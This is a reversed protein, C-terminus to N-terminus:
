YGKTIFLEIKKKNKGEGMSYGVSVENIKFGFEEKFLERIKENDNYTILLKHKSLKCDEAFKVHDFDKHTSGKNGYLNDSVIQYPPDLFIFVDEGDEFLLDEYSSSRIQCTSLIKSVSKINEIHNDKFRGDYSAQSYGGSLGLGSFTIRNQIFYAAARELLNKSDDRLTKASEIYLKPGTKNLLKQNNIENVLEDPCCQIHQWCNYLVFFKDSAKKIINKHSALQSVYLLYSGGGLFPERYEKYSSSPALSSIQNILKSKGGPYRYPSRIKKKNNSQETM